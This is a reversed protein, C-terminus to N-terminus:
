CKMEDSRDRYCKNGERWWWCWWWWGSKVRIFIDADAFVSIQNISILFFTVLSNFFQICFSALNVVITHRAIFFRLFFFLHSFSHTLMQNTKYAYKHPELSMIIVVLYFVIQTNCCVNRTYNLWDMQITKYRSQIFHKQEDVFVVGIKEFGFNERIM